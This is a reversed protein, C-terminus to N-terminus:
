RADTKRYESENLLEQTKAPGVIPELKCYPRIGLVKRRTEPQITNRRQCVPCLKTDDDLEFKCIRCHQFIRWTTGDSYGRPLSETVLHLRNTLCVSVASQLQLLNGEVPHDSKSCDLVADILESLAILKDGYWDTTQWLGYWAPKTAASLKTFLEPRSDAARDLITLYDMGNEVAPLWGYCGAWVPFQQESDIQCDM